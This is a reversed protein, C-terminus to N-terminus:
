TATKLLHFQITGSTLLAAIAMRTPGSLVMTVACGCCFLLLMPFHIKSVTNLPFGTYISFSLIHQKNKLIKKLDGWWGFDKETCQCPKTILASTYSKGKICFSTDRRKRFSLEKGMICTEGQPHGCVLSFETESACKSTHTRAANMHVNGASGHAALLRLRVRHVSPPFVAQLGSQRAGLGVQLQHPWVCQLRVCVGCVCIWTIICDLMFDSLWHHHVFLTM